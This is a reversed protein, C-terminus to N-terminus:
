RLSAPESINANPVSISEFSRFFISYFAFFIIPSSEASVAPDPLDFKSSALPFIPIRSKPAFALM